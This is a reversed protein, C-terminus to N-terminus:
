EAAPIQARTSLFSEDVSNRCARRLRRKPKTKAYAFTSAGVFAVVRDDCYEQQLTQTIELV